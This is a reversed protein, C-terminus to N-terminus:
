KSLFGKIYRDRTKRQAEGQTTAAIAAEFEKDDDTKDQSDLQYHSDIDLITQRVREVSILDIEREVSM